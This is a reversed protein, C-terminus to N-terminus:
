NLKENKNYNTKHRNLMLKKLLFTTAKSEFYQVVYDCRRDKLLIQVHQHHQHMHLLFITSTLSNYIGNRKFYYEITETKALVTVSSTSKPIGSCINYVKM